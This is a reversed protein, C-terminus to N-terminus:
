LLKLLVFMLLPLFFPNMLSNWATKLLLIWVCFDRWDLAGCLQSILPTTPNILFSFHLLFHITINLHQQLHTIITYESHPMVRLSVWCELQKTFFFCLETECTYQEFCVRSSLVTHRFVDVDPCESNEESIRNDIHSKLISEFFGCFSYKSFGWLM